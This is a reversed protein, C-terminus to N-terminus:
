LGIEERRKQLVADAMSASVDGGACVREIEPLFYKVSRIAGSSGNRNLLTQIVAIEVLRSDKDLNAAVAGDILRKLDSNPLPNSISIPLEDKTQVSDSRHEVGLEKLQRRKAGSAKGANSKKRFNDEYKKREKEQRENVMRTPDKKKPIFFTKLIMEAAKTTCNKGIRKAARVPDATIGEDGWSRDLARRYWCEEAASLNDVRESDFIDKPYWLYAPSKPVRKM